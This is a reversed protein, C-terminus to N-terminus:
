LILSLGFLEWVISEFSKFSKLDKRGKPIMTWAAFEWHFGLSSSGSQQRSETLWDAIGLTETWPMKITPKLRNGMDPAIGVKGLNLPAVVPGRCGLVWNSGGEWQSNTSKFWETKFLSSQRATTLTLMMLFLVTGTYINSPLTEKETFWRWLKRCRLHFIFGTWVLLLKM